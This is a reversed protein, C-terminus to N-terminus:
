EWQQLPLEDYWQKAFRSVMRMHRYELGILWAGALSRVRSLATYAQGDSFCKSFDIVVRDLSMGQSKHISVAWALKLPIQIRCAIEKGKDGLVSFKM